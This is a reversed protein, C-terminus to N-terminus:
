LLYDLFTNKLKSLKSYAISLPYIAHLHYTCLFIHIGLSQMKPMQRSLLKINKTLNEDKSFITKLVAHSYKVLKKREQNSIYVYSTTCFATLIRIVSFRLMILQNQNIAHKEIRQIAMDIGNYPIRPNKYIKKKDTTISGLRMRYLYGVYDLVVVKETLM